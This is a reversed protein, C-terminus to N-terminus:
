VIALKNYTRPWQSLVCKVDTETKDKILQQFEQLAKVKTICDKKSMKKFIVRFDADITLDDAAAATGSNAAVIIAATSDDAATAASAISASLSASLASFGVVTNLSGGSATTALLQASRDSSAPKANGKTRQGKVM